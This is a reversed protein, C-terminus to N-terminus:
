KPQNNSGGSGGSSSPFLARMFADYKDGLLKKEEESSPKPDRFMEVLPGCDTIGVDKCAKKISEESLPTSGGSGGSGGSSPPFLRRNFADFKPGLLTKMESETPFTPSTFMKVVPGCDTIGVDTCVKKISAESLAYSGSSDPTPMSKGYMMKCNAATQKLLQECMTQWKDASLKTWDPGTPTFMSKCDAGFSKSCNDDYKTNKNDMDDFVADLKTNGTSGPGYMLKCNATTQRLLQECMKQWKTPTLKTWDPGTPTFMLKCDAGFSKSCNDDYKTDKNDINDLVADLTPNRTSKRGQKVSGEGTGEEEEVLSEANIFTLIYEDSETAKNAGSKKVTVRFTFDGDLWADDEDTADISFTIKGKKSNAKSVQDWEDDENLQELIASRAPTTSSMQVVIKCNNTSEGEIMEQEDACDGTVSFTVKQKTPAANAVQATALLGFAVLVSIVLTKTTRM